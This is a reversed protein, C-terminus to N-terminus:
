LKSNSTARGLEIRLQQIVVDLKEVEEKVVLITEKLSMSQQVVGRIRNVIEEEDFTLITQVPVGLAEAVALLKTHSLTKRKELRSINQQAMGMKQAFTEQKISLLRRLAQINKGIHVETM